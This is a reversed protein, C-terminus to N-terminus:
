LRFRWGSYKWSIRLVHATDCRNHWYVTTWAFGPDWSWAFCGTVGRQVARTQANAAPSALVVIGLAATLLAVPRVVRM